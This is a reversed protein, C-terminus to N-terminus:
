ELEGKVAIAWKCEKLNVCPNGSPVLNGGCANVLFRIFSMLKRQYVEFSEFVVDSAFKHSL